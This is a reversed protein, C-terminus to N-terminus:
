ICEQMKRLMDLASNVTNVDRINLLLKNATEKLKCRSQNVQVFKLLQMFKDSQFYTSEQDGVFYGILTKNRLVIKEFGLERAIWRLRVTNLLDAASKPIPGFRDILRETFAQLATEEQVNDLETYLSIRETSSDIYESPLLIELDSEIVCDKVFRGISQTPFVDGFESEKLEQVAEDLIKHFMEYGIESIFGSQEGGLLNGAGRIDLDRLSINFGSGLDSFENIARLRKQSESPLSALPPALLYCFAKKNSRGVRGRLQHLDALGFNQADNIIITNANSIDLGSEIITTALLVDTKGEIFDLMVKELQHGELQGHGVGIRIGPVFKMLMSKIDLINQVRNHVFFVQGGRNIEFLIAESIVDRNFSRLETQVPYRNPPPTNIISLDRAGMMSFQLTRPIPTATLTLTDVNAKIQKLKEKASVGFKQEEDIILLGLNKFEVDKSILRHTGILIDVKGEKLNNLTEKQQAASKFRNLYDVTAPFEALRDSFTKFHQLALITTPVLVAVQKSDAVAKFAARIAIETKGFGVDGCVLRDMPSESEMDAKVDSTAKIQDPTDEYIFSAELETQMYTDPMFQFGICAKREAYLKILDRAIDKVRSKAKTKLKNWANSGLKNLSPEVGDKGSYKSIRHLSHISVYLIDDNQYILRIAEQQKGNNDIIEMGAFRGIGHDIHSVFDGICLDNLQKITLVEKSAFSERIHFKHYREFIQHDTYCCLKLDNDIFGSELSHNIYQFEVINNDDKDAQIDHLIQTLRDIQKGSESLVYIDLKETNKKRLDNLLLEFNKNFNPQPSCQFQAVYVADILSKKGYEITRCDILQSWLEKGNCFLLDPKQHGQESDLKEFATIAKLHEADIRDSFAAAEDIWVTLGDPFFSFLSEREEFVFRDQVNPLLQISNMQTISLQSVPNFTRISEVEDGFFEIRYPHDNSFSFVDLIGGRISFQGPEIVFDVREFNYELLLDSVFDLSVKESVKLKISFKSLHRRTVVKECLAEPYSVVITKRASVSVRSLVETRSLIYTNDPKEPEYPRKYSSPYFLVRKKSFEQERESFLNELDNYFYAASEKDRCIVLHQGGLLESLASTVVSSASGVTGSLLAHKNRELEAAISIIQKSKQYIERISITNLNFYKQLPLSHLLNM